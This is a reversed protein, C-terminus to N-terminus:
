IASHTTSSRMWAAMIWSRSSCSGRPRLGCPMVSAIMRACHYPPRSSTPVAGAPWSLRSSVSVGVTGHILAREGAELGGYDFLGQWASRAPLVRTLIGVPQPDKGRSWGLLRASTIENLRGNTVGDVRSQDQRSRKSSQRGHREGACSSMLISRTILRRLAARNDILTATM